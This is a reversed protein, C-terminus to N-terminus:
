LPKDYNLQTVRYVQLVYNFTGRKTNLYSTLRMKMNDNVNNKKNAWQVSSVFARFNENSNLSFAGCYSNSYIKLVRKWAISIEIDYGGDNQM